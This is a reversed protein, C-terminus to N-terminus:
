CCFMAYEHTQQCGRHQLLTCYQLPTTPEEMGARFGAGMKGFTAEKSYQTHVCPVFLLQKQQHEQSGPQSGSTGTCLGHCGWLHFFAAPSSVWLFLQGQKIWGELHHFCWAAPTELEPPRRSASWRSCWCCMADSTNTVMIISHAPRGEPAAQGSM